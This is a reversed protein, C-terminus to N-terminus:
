ADLQMGLSDAKPSTASQFVPSQGQTQHLLVLHGGRRSAGGEGVPSGIFYWLAFHFATGPSIFVTSAVTLTETRM